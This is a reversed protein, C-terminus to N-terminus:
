AGPKAADQCLRSPDGDCVKNASCVGALLRRSVNMYDIIDKEKEEDM